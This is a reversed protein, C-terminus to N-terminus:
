EVAHSSLVLVILVFKFAVVAFIFDTYIVGPLVPFARHIQARRSTHPLTGREFLPARSVYLPERGM